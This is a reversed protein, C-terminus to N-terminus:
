LSIHRMKYLGFGAGALWLLYNLATKFPDFIPSFAATTSADMLMVSSTGQALGAWADHMLAFYGFPPKKVIADKLDSYQSLSSSAPVFLFSLAGCIGDSFWNGSNCAISTSAITLTSTVGGYGSGTGGTITFSIVDGAYRVTSSGPTLVLPQAYYTIPPLLPPYNLTYQKAIAWYNWSSYPFVSRDFDNPGYDISPFTSSSGNPASYQVALTGTATLGTGWTLWWSSFDATATSSAPTSIALEITPPPPPGAPDYFSFNYDGNLNALYSRNNDGKQAMAVALVDSNQYSFNLFGAPFAVGGPYSGCTSTAARYFNIFLRYKQGNILTRPFGLHIYFDGASSYPLTGISSTAYYNCADHIGDLPFINEGYVGGDNNGPDTDNVDYIKDIRVHVYPTYSSTASNAWMKLRIQELTSTTATFTQALAQYSGDTTFTSNDVSQDIIVAGHALLPLAFLAAAIIFFITKRTDAM